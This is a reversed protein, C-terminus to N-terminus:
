RAGRLRRSTWEALLSALVLAFLMWNVRSTDRRPPLSADLPTAPGLADVLSALPM